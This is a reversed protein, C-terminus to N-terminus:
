KCGLRQLLQTLAARIEKQGDMIEDLESPYISGREHIRSAIQNVNNSLSGLLRVAKHLEPLDVKLVMGNLAMARIFESVNTVGYDRMKGRIAADEAETVRFGYFVTRKMKEAM